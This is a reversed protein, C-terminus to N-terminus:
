IPSNRHQSITFAPSRASVPPHEKVAIQFTKTAVATPSIVATVTITVIGPMHTTLRGSFIYGQPLQQASAAASALLATICAVLRALM